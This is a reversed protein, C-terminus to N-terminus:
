EPCIFECVKKWADACENQYEGYKIDFFSHPAGPYTIFEHQV